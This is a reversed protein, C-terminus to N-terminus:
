IDFKGSTELQQWVHEPTITKTCEFQKENGKNQPCWNWDGRDFKAWTWCGSCVDRNIIRVAADFEVFEWTFGSIMCVNIDLAWALWSLGSSIGVMKGTARMYQAAEVLDKIHEVGSLKTDEKSIYYVPIKKDGFKNVLDQWGTPHNWYKAQATSQTAICVGKADASPHKLLFEPAMTPRREVYKIGLQDAAIAGMPITRWDRPHKEPNSVADETQFIGLGQNNQPYQLSDEWFSQRIGKLALLKWDFLFSKHTRVALREFDHESNMQEIQGMFSLSDGLSSTEMHVGFETIDPRLTYQLVGTDTNYIRCEWEQYWGQSYRAWLGTVLDRQWQKTGAKWFEAHWNGESQDCHLEPGSKYYFRCKPVAPIAVKLLEEVLNEGLIEQSSICSWYNNLLWYTTSDTLHSSAGDWYLLDPKRTEFTKRIWEVTLESHYHAGLKLHPFDLPDGGSWNKKLELLYATSGAMNIGQVLDYVEKSEEITDICDRLIVVVRPELPKVNGIKNDTYRSQRFFTYWSGNTGFTKTIQKNIKANYDAFGSESAKTYDDNFTLISLRKYKLGDLKDGDQFVVVVNDHEINFKISKDPYLAKIKSQQEETLDERTLLSFEHISDLWECTSIASTAHWVDEYVDSSKYVLDQEMCYSANLNFDSHEEPTMQGSDSGPRRVYTYLRRPIHLHPGRTLNYFLFYTDTSTKCNKLIPLKDIDVRRMCRATGFMSQTARQSYIDWFEGTHRLNWEELYDETPQVLTWQNLNGEEDVQHSDSFLSMVEPHADFNNSYIEFLNPDIIDDTDLDFYYDYQYHLFMNQYLYLERREEVQYYLIRPDNIEEVKRKLKRKFEPDDSFDDGVILLWDKHTQSLVNDFTRDIHEDPNNHFSAVVLFKGM